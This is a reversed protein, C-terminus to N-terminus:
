YMAYMIDCRMDDIIACMGSHRVLRVSISRRVHKEGIHDENSSKDSKSAMAYADPSAQDLSYICTSIRLFFPSFSSPRSPSLLSHLSAWQANLQAKLTHSATQQPKHITAEPRSSPRILQHATIPLCYTGTQVM